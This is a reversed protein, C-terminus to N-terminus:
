NSDDDNIYVRANTFYIALLITLYVMFSSLLGYVMSSSARSGGMRFPKAETNFQISDNASEISGVVENLASAEAECQLAEIGTVMGLAILKRQRNKLDQIAARLRLTHLALTHSHLYLQYNAVSGTIGVALLFIIAMSVFVLSQVVFCSGFESTLDSAGVIDVMVAVSLGSAVALILSNYLDTRLRFRDGFNQITLRAYTWSSVNRKFCLDITPMQSYESGNVTKTSLGATLSRAPRIGSTAPDSLYSSPAIGLSTSTTNTNGQLLVNDQLTLDQQSYIPNIAQQNILSQIAAQNRSRDDESSSGYSTFASVEPEVMVDTLRIMAHISRFMNVLRGSDWIALALLLFVVVGFFANVVVTSLLFTYVLIPSEVNNGDAVLIVPLLANTFAYIFICYVTFSQASKPLDSNLIIARCCDLVSVHVSQDPAVHLQDCLPTTIDVDTGSLFANWHQLNRMDWSQPDCPPLSLTMENIRAAVRICASGLEFEVLRADRQRWDGLLNMQALFKGSVTSDTCLMFRRFETQSLSAYKLAVMLRHVIFLLLPMVIAGHVRGRDSKSMFIYTFCIIYVLIPLIINFLNSLLSTSLFRQARLNAFLPALPIITHAIFQEVFVRIHFQGNISDFLFDDDLFSAKSRSKTPPPNRDSHSTYPIEVSSMDYGEQM